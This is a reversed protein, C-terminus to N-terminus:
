PMRITRSTEDILCGELLLCMRKGFVISLFVWNFLLARFSFFLNAMGFNSSVDLEVVGVLNRHM